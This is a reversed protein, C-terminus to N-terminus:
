RWFFACFPIGVQSDKRVCKTHTVGNVTSSTWSESVWGGGSGANSAIQMRSSGMGRAADFPLSMPPLFPVNGFPSSEFGRRGFPADFFPDGEFARHLDGFISNFLIFPDTFGWPSSRPGFGFPGPPNHFPPEHFPGRSFPESFHNSAFPAQPPASAPPPWVGHRDYIARNQPDSLVEYANNVQTPIHVPSM